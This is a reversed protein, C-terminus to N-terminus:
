TQRGNEAGEGAGDDTVGAESLDCDNALVLDAGRNNPEDRLEHLAGFGYESEIYLTEGAIEPPEMGRVRMDSRVKSLRQCCEGITSRLGVLDLELARARAWREPHTDRDIDGPLGLRGQDRRLQRFNDDLAWLRALERDHRRSLELPLRGDAECRRVREVDAKPTGVPLPRGSEGSFWKAASWSSSMVEPLVEVQDEPLRPYLLQLPSVDLAAAVVILEFIPLKDGRLGKELKGITTRHVPYGLEVTRDALQYTSLDRQTRLHRIADGIRRATEAPWDAM